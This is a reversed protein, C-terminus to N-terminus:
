PERGPKDLEYVSRYSCRGEGGGQGWRGAPKAPQGRTQQHLKIQKIAQAFARKHKRPSTQATLAASVRGADDFRWRGGWVCGGAECSPPLFLTERLYLGQGSGYLSGWRPEWYLREYISQRLMKIRSPSVNPVVWSYKWSVWNALLNVLLSGLIVEQRTSTQLRFQVLLPPFSSM